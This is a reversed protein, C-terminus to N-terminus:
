APYCPQLSLVDEQFADEAKKLTIKHVNGYLTDKGYSEVSCMQIEDNNWMAILIIDLNKALVDLGELHNSTGETSRRYRIDISM